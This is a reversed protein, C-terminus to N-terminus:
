GRLAVHGTTSRGQAALTRLDEGSEYGFWLLGNPVLLLAALFGARSYRGRANLAVARPPPSLYTGQETLTAESPLSFTSM